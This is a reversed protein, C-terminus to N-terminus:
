EDDDYKDEGNKALEVNDALKEKVNEALLRSGSGIGSSGDGSPWM